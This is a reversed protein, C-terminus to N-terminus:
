SDKIQFMSCSSCKGIAKKNELSIRLQNVEISNFIESLSSKNINGIPYEKNVDMCCACVIGDWSIFLGYYPWSCQKTRLGSFKTCRTDIHYEINDVITNWYNHFDPIFAYNDNLLITSICIRTNRNIKNRLSVTKIINNKIIDFKDLGRIKIYRNPNIAELSFYIAHIGSNLLETVIAPNLNVGNTFLFVKINLSCLYEVAKTLYGCCTPEGRWHLFVKDITNILSIQYAIKKFLIYDMEGTETLMDQRYCMICKLNCKNTLEIHVQKLINPM